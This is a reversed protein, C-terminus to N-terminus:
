APPTGFNSGYEARATTGTIVVEIVTRTDHPPPAGAAHPGVAPIIVPARTGSDVVHSFSYPDYAYVEHRLAKKPPRAAAAVIPTFESM